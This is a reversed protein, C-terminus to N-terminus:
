PRDTIPDFCLEQEMKEAMLALQDRTITGQEILVEILATLGLTTKYLHEKVDAVQALMEIRDM